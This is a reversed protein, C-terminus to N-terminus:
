SKNDKRENFLKMIDPEVKEGYQDEYKKIDAVLDSIARDIKEKEKVKEYRNKLSKEIDLFINTLCYNLESETGYIIPDTIIRMESLIEKIATDICFTRLEEFNFVNTNTIKINKIAKVSYEYIYEPHAKICKSFFYHDQDAFDSVYFSTTPEHYVSYKSFDLKYYKERSDIDSPLPVGSNRELQEIIGLSKLIDGKELNSHIISELHTIKFAYKKPQDHVIFKPLNLKFEIEVQVYLNKSKQLVADSINSEETDFVHQELMKIDQNAFVRLHDEFNDLLLYEICEKDGDLIRIKDYWYKMKIGRKRKNNIPQSLFYPFTNKFKM